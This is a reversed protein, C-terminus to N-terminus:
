ESLLGLFIRNTIDIVIYIRKELLISRQGKQIYINKNKRLKLFHGYDSKKWINLKLCQQLCLIHVIYLICTKLDIIRIRSFIYSYSNLYIKEIKYCCNTKFLMKHYWFIKWYTRFISFIQFLFKWSVLILFHM